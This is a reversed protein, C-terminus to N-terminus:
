KFLGFLGKLVDLFKSSGAPLAANFAESNNLEIGATKLAVIKAALDTLMPTNSSDPSSQLGGTRFRQEVMNYFTLMAQNKTLDVGAKKAEGDIAANVNALDLGKLSSVLADLKTPNAAANFNNQLQMATLNLPNAQQAFANAINQGDTEASTKDKQMQILGTQAITQQLDTVGKMLSMVAGIPNGGSNGGTSVVSGGAPSGAALQPNVGALEMDHARRQVATNALDINTQNAERMADVQAKGTFADVSQGVWNGFNGAMQGIDDFFSM